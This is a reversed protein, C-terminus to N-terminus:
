FKISFVSEAQLIEHLLSRVAGKKVCNDYVLRKLGFYEISSILLLVSICIIVLSVTLQQVETRGTGNVQMHIEYIYETVVYPKKALLLYADKCAQIKFPFITRHTAMWLYNYNFGDATNLTM